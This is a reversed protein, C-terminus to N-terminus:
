LISGVARAFPIETTNWEPLFALSLFPPKPRRSRSVRVPIIHASRFSYKNGSIEKHVSSSHEIGGKRIIKLM